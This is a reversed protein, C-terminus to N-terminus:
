VNEDGGLLPSVGLVHKPIPIGLIELEKKVAESVENRRFFQHSGTRYESAQLSRLEKRIQHWSKGGGIEMARQILLALVCIRIHAEIRRPVWHYMPSMKLQSRKLSRFCQEIVMLGKYGCAADEYSITDDNTEIVWKGDYRLAELVAKRNLVVEGDENIRLYRKYRLSALLEIAWQATARRDTHRKLERELLSVVEERHKLQREAERPNYCLIYRRRREGEGVIVEKAHLNDRIVTYRGRKGLVKRKVESVSAMRSALLYKGCARSLEKRNEESNMGCDAVFLARGLKWGRLDSRVREVTESDATNGPFVWCRVPLGERTVALAIVVQPSWTGEKSKGYRRLGIEGNEEDEEDEDDIAFSATTTDYFILDVELNFLNATHFFVSKEVEAAHEHFFDMAEYMQNLSLGSCSPLYVRSLWRDWVGLKSEPECLRNATMALLAAEHRYGNGKGGMAQRLADRIGLREWFAEVALVTGFEYTKVQEIDAPWKVGGVAEEPDSEIRIGCVRAISHCLRVLSDRDLEDARGFSHIIQAIPKKTNPDRVNHALQFYETTTGNKNKRKTSRLYM